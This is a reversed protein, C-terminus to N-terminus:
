RNPAITLHAAAKRESERRRRWALYVFFWAVLNAGIWSFAIDVKEDYSRIARDRLLMSYEEPGSRTAIPERDRLFDDDFHEDDISKGAAIQAAEYEHYEKRYRQAFALEVDFHALLEPRTERLKSEIASQEKECYNRLFERMESTHWFQHSMRKAREYGEWAIYSQGVRKMTEAIALALHPDDEGGFRWMAIIGLM